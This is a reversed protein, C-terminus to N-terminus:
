SRPVESCSIKCPPKPNAAAAFAEYPANFTVPLFLMLISPLVSLAVVSLIELLSSLLTLTLELPTVADNPLAIPTRIASPLRLPLLSISIFFAVSLPSVIEIVPLAAGSTLTSAKATEADAVNAPLPNNAPEILLLVVFIKPSPVVKVPSSSLMVASFRELTLVFVSEALPESKALPLKVPMKFLLVATAFTSKLLASTLAAFVATLTLLEGVCFTPNTDNPAPPKNAAVPLIASTVLLGEAVAFIEAFFIEASSKVIVAVAFVVGSIETLPKLTPAIATPEFKICATRSTFTSAENFASLAVSLLSSMLAFIFEAGLSVTLPSPPPSTPTAGKAATRSSLSVCDFETLSSPVNSILFETLTLAKLPSAPVYVASASPAATIPADPTLSLRLASEFTAILKLLASM